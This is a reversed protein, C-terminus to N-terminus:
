PASGPLVYVGTFESSTFFQYFAYDSGPPVPPPAVAPTFDWTTYNTVSPRTVVVLLEDGQAQVEVQTWMFMSPDIGIPAAGPDLVGQTYRLRKGGAYIPRFPPAARQGNQYFVEPYVTQIPETIGGVPGAYAISQVASALVVRPGADGAATSAQGVQQQPIHFPVRNQRFDYLNRMRWIFTYQYYEYFGQALYVVIRPLWISLRAGYPVALGKALYNSYGPSGANSDLAEGGESMLIPFNVSQGQYLTSFDNVPRLIKANGFQADATVFQNESM